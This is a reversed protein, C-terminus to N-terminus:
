AASSEEIFQVQVQTSSSEGAGVKCALREQEPTQERTATNHCQEGMDTCTQQKSRNYHVANLRVFTCCPRTEAVNHALLGLKGIHRLEGQKTGHMCEQESKPPHRVAHLMSVLLVSPTPHARDTPGQIRQPNVAGPNVAGQLTWGGM